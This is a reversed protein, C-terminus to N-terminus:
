EDTYFNNEECDEKLMICGRKISRETQGYVDKYEDCRTCQVRVGPTSRGNSNPMDIEEVEVEVRAM